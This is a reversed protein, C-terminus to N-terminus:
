KERNRFRLVSSRALRWLWSALSCIEPFPAGRGNSSLWRNPSTPRTALARRRQHLITDALTFDSITEHWQDVHVQAIVAPVQAIVITFGRGYRDELVEFMDLSQEQLLKELGWDDLIFLNTMSGAVIMKQYSGDGRPAVM